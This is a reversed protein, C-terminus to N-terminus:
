SPAKESTHLQGRRRTFEDADIEGRAFREALLEDAHSTAPRTGARHDTRTSRILWVVIGALAAWFLVMMLGMALWDIASWGGDDWGMM